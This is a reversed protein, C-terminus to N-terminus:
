SRSSIRLEGVHREVSVVMDAINEKVWRAAIASAEDAQEATGWTSISVGKNGGTTVVDYAIFGPHQRFLPLVGSEVRKSVEDITGPKFTYVAVRVHAM